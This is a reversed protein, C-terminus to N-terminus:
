FVFQIVIVILDFNFIALKEFKQQELKGVIQRLMGLCVSDAGQANAKVLERCLWIM